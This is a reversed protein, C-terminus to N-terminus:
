GKKERCHRNGHKGGEQQRGWEWGQTHHRARAHVHTLTYTCTHRAQPVIEQGGCTLFFPWQRHPLWERYPCGGVSVWDVSCVARAHDHLPTPIHVDANAPTCAAYPPPPYTSKLCMPPDTLREM